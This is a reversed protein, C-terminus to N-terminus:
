HGRMRMSRKLDQMQSVEQDRIAHGTLKLFVDELTPRHLGISILPLPFGSVFGPLFEEGHPVTFRIAGNEQHSPLNYQDKLVGLAKENDETKITVVDGGVADKLNDPTDLAVIKGYDIVAIRDCNEAEDMYHTTMFIALNEKKRLERVHDWIRNRTQPDLGLTPEDLFLVKPHHL